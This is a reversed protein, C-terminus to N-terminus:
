ATQRPAGGDATKPAWDPGLQALYHVPYLRDLTFVPLFLVTGLYPLMGIGCTCCVCLSMLSGAAFHMMWLWLYYLNLSWFNGPLVERRFVGIAQVASIRRHWQIVPIFDRLVWLCPMVTLAMIIAWGSMALVIVLCDPSFEGQRVYLDLVAWAGRLLPGWTLAQGALMVGLRWRALSDAEKRFEAWPRATQTRGTILNDLFIFIGRTSLWVMLACVGAAALAVAGGIAATRDPNKLIWAHAQRCLVDPDTKTAGAGLFHGATQLLGGGGEMLLSLFAGFGLAFWSGPEFPRFLLGTMRTWATNFPAIVPLGM